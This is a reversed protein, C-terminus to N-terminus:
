AFLAVDRDRRRVKESHTRSHLIRRTTQVFELWVHRHRHRTSRSRRSGTEGIREARRNEAADISLLADARSHSEVRKADRKGVVRSSRSRPRPMGHHDLDPTRNFAM